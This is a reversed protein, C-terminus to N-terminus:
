SARCFRPTTLAALVMRCVYIINYLPDPASCCVCVVRNGVMEFAMSDEYARVMDKPLAEVPEWSDEEFNSWRVLFQTKKKKYRKGVLEDIDHLEEEDDEEEEDNFDVNKQNAALKRKRSGPRGDAEPEKTLRSAVADRMSFLKKLTARDFVKVAEKWQESDVNRVLRTSVDLKMGKSELCIWVVTNALAVYDLNGGILPPLKFGPPLAPVYWSQSVHSGGMMPSLASMGTRPPNSTDFVVGAVLLGVKPKTTTANRAFGYAIQVSSDPNGEILTEKALGYRTMSGTTKGAALLCGTLANTRFDDLRQQDVPSFEFNSTRPLLEGAHRFCNGQFLGKEGNIFGM